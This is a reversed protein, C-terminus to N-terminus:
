EVGSVLRTYIAELDRAFTASDFLKAESRAAAVRARIDRLFDADTALRLALREYNDLTSAILETLQCSTLLSASVRAAFTDGSLAVLPCGLWLADSWSPYPPSALPQLAIYWYGSGAGFSWMGIGFAAWTLRQERVLRARLLCLAGPVIFLGAYLLEYTDSTPDGPGGAAAVTSVVLGALGITWLVRLAWTYRPPFSRASFRTELSHARLRRIPAHLKFDIAVRENDAGIPARAM